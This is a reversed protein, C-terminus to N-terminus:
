GPVEVIEGNRSLGGALAEWGEAIRHKQSLAHGLSPLGRYVPHDPEDGHAAVVLGGIPATRGAADVPVFDIAYATGFRTTGHSPVRDAPSNRTLWRGTFPYSLEVSHRV